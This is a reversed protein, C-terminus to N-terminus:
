LDAIAELPRTRAARAAPWLSALVGVVAALLLMVVAQTMPVSITGLGADRLTRVFLSGFVLGLAVGVIAGFLAILTSELYITRRVQARVLGVARLMGIERRREVVSLALTNIIGLVAIVIALALLGYLIGLLQDITRARDGKFQEKDQVKVVLYPDTAHTLDARLAALDAGPKARVLVADDLWRPQPTVQRYYDGSVLWSDFLPNSRFTGTVTLPAPAGDLTTAAVTSGLAWHHSKAYEDAVLVGHAGVQESGSTLHLSVVSSLRGDFGTGNVTKGDLKAQVPYIPVVDQVGSVQSVASTAHYPVGLSDPGTLAYDATVDNDVVQNVQAKASAGFVAIASVLMLGLTLAFATAATRRPNRVANTRSLRGIAGFPGAVVAGVTGVLPRSLAPAGLLVGVVVLLAGLGVLGAAGGGPHMTSGGALAVAGALGISAGLGTRLRLSSGTSAYEQRMAAVPPTAAARRAPTYASVMTVLVGVLLAVVITRPQLQLPGSPLGLAFANLLSRLGYALGVGAAIGLVSGALGVVAAELLVSRNVQRRSAGIARLLALERLRQAVIMSFTNYIIFTGVLLAIAGFALLFYNIFTIATTVDDQTQKTVEAGTKYTLGPVQQQLRHKLAAQSLGSGAINVAHVHTGDSFLQMAQDRAFLAGVYGGTDSSTDYVGTVTVEVADRSPVLIKTRDGLGLKALKMAGKNLAIEGPAAPPRGSVFRYAPGVREVEPSYALGETPAGGSRVPKGDAALMVIQGSVQPDVARVGPVSRLRSLDSTPVGAGNENPGTVQVDVGKAVDAFLGHFTHGLTDTFVFSGTVFATGLVVSLVTLALRIKHAALNRLSVTRLASRSM